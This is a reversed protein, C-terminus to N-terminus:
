RVEALILHVRKMGSLRSPRAHEPSGEGQEIPNFMKLQNLGVKLLM